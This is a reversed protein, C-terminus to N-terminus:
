INFVDYETSAEEENDSGTQLEVYKSLEKITNLQFLDKISVEVDMQKRIASIVRVALLSHGGLEFFNDNVGIKEVGLLEQWINALAKEVYSVPAVYENMSLAQRAPNPLARRDIKGNTTVPLSELEVWMSPVMYEPLNNKLENVISEKNFTGEPVVYAVLSKSGSKDERALVVGQRVGTVQQLCSEIEGLEIRYGRIKVQDDIRGLYEINGDSLWRALDGTRYLTAGKEKSFKDDIFKEATLDPRNLYGQAVQVGGIYLEGAVGIPQLAKKNNLVYLATNDIPKGIPPLATSISYEDVNHSSVVHAETPGYQNVLSLDFKKVFDRIDATVKLQEGAVIIQELSFSIQSQSLLYEALNKFVIFPIFLHTIQNHSLIEAMKPMDRRDDESIIHLTSGFCLTSFIEQFSVDFNLSAFQLVQRHHNTFQKEQWTLLNVMGDRGMKVGKPRGTSGSTYIIYILGNPNLDIDPNNKSQASIDPMQTDLEIIEIEAKSTIKSRSIASSVIVAANTDSLMFGIREEPYEPDIPVYAAGAKVIGLVGVILNLSREICIPVMAGATVGKAKLYNALQNARENLQAYTLAEKGFIVANAEPSKTVQAEFIDIISLHSPFPTKTNNFDFTLQKEEDPTLMSLNDIEQEPSSIAASLLQKFHGAMRTITQETFLDTAYEISGQLGGPTENMFFILDFKSTDQGFREHALEVDGLKLKEVEPTNQLVFMVQFLPSRSLDREKVVVEVVKEFPVEQNAYAELTILKVKQLLANFSTEGEVDTRIALTNVFFGILEEVEKQIRNAIPTGVCIDRQNSYRHLLVKFCTLLTMYLTTGQEKSLRQLQKSLTANINFKIISGRNSQVAPRPYDTPLQLPTTDSLQRKWYQVKRDMVDGQLYSRQWLAYDAFQVPVEPLLPERHESFSAYLEVLEKVIISVSWGDSAIHHVTVVLIYEEPALVVLDARIMYDRALEFPHKILNEILQHLQQSDNQYRTGDTVRLEWEKYDRIQQFVKGDNEMFVTRLVEHRKVITQLAYHLAKENLRGNLRLVTPIHYPLSGELQDIFWLREQSFSLPIQVPRKGVLIEPLLEGRNQKEVQKALGGITPHNFLDKIALEVNLKKRVASVARTALLSHGGLDFFDDNLGVREVGLLQQWILALSKEVETEPPAYDLKNLLSNDERESLFKRDVKGNTTLPLHDLMIFATPIMYDPLRQQLEARIESQLLSSITTMLPVNTYLGNFNNSGGNAIQKFISRSPELEFVVDTKLPDGNVLLRYKYGRADAAQFLQKVRESTQDQHRIAATLNGVTNESQNSLAQDLMREQWLRPNPVNAITIIPEGLELKGPIQQDAVENWNLWDPNVTDKTIGVHLVVNYRYLTLENIFSSNKWQIEVHTIQPFVAQLDRFYDPSFCLEEEKLVEQDVSWQFERVNVTDQLKSLILRSKFLKLLRKDRVDGIIIRGQGKLVLICKKVVDTLYDDGPFYQVVSNIVITDINENENVAIEHAASVHLETPGYDRLGESIRNRIQNVASKSFDSGIYKNVKGALQYYILGTGSGIELVSKPNGSLILNIIDYLWDKMQEAPIPLADFSNNWGIINFEPDINEDEETKEYETEYLEKWNAVQRYYLEKEKEKVSKWNPVIYGALQKSGEKETRALVVAESVMASQNLITEIEGLEIRYGRIKVQNDLRGMYEISGDPLWRGLDGTRYLRSDRKADFPNAVFRAATLEPRNHYGRALGAGAICIEGAVGVPVLELEGTLIYIQTNSIPKGILIPSHNQLRFVTSYTTDETPGYLNRIEMRDADLKSQVSEPIPEGAMNMVSINTLDTGEKLLHQIVTPVSNTMVNKEDALYNGIYLGNEIIRLRKGISLPYFIEFISLDFCMSTGAYVIDFQSSLFEDKCWSIFSFMNGHEIMVGKPQGTSGSTYIVYALNRPNIEINPNDSPQLDIVPQETDVEVIHVEASIKIKSRVISSSVVFSGASDKLMYKIREDPYEPDVPVYAGGAKLIGLMSVIMNSSREICLPVLSEAKVGLGILYHAFQNARRNLEKYTIEEKEFVVAVTDPTCLVQEEFLDIVTKNGPYTKSTNNFDSLLQEKEQANIMELDSIKTEPSAVIGKLLTQFHNIMRKITEPNFLDTCYEISLRIGEPTETAFFTLDFLATKHERNENALKVDGLKLEPIEPTNRLVFMVQFLPNRSLDRESVVADVIKEFPIEQNAYAELTKTKIQQLLENFSHGANLETRLALTNVFFGILKELEPQLRGAIPTGVCIDNQGSYRYLLVKFAALLTMFLTTGQRHSLDRLQNSMSVDIATVLAAGRTSQIAPRRYDTPLQLPPVDALKQKWYGLKKDFVEGVLYNRQWIAYDAYQITLAPLQHPKNQNRSEYLEVLESVFVSRSWGDSAIHHLTVVLVNDNEDLTIIAARIMSDKSLDFPAETIKQLYLDLAAANNKYISGDVIELKWENDEKIQQYPQGEHQIIVTRLVEHRSVITELSYSLAELNLKGKLRLVAPVHYQVSGEMQDIFWLREQSFSLPIQEPRKTSPKISPLVQAESPVAIQSALTAVTPFDFIHGIPMEVQFERRIMSILRVALLSHGGREFFDDHVGLEEVELVDKWLVSLREETENRPAVHQGGSQESLEPDPLSKRDIKGNPLMPFSEMVVWIAPIMYEPLKEKLDSLMEDKDFDGGGTVYGVLRKNGDKDDKALVVAQNVIGGQLLRNEIEGLEVRYGRIKVQDDVRGIFEINGDALYRVLDGTRYMLLTHNNGFPNRIFKESTLENNNLYGRAVGDGAIHLEGPVGPPCLRGDVSLIYAKSNSFPKGIPITKSYRRGFDVVHLLKGITTETPGYHNVVKCGSGSKKIKEIVDSSLAEGGFVLIRAPLLLTDQMTLAKWHSPVIKLCDIKHDEFYRHLEEINSVSNKSFIHLEGGFILSPFIVTNGLDTAISSVLAYSKCENIQIAQNLGAVYDVLSRHEIMVGKPRGTSGSTYILYALNHPKLDTQPNTVPQQRVGSFYDDIEIVELDSLSPLYYASESSSVVLAAGTDNLVFLKRDEPFDPEIPVYAAGAKLIGLIGVLMHHSREICLPVFSDEKIGRTRLYHALQNARENLAKYSLSHEEFVVATSDPTRAAQEEFLDVITSQKSYEVKSANFEQLYEKEEQDTLLSINGIRETPEQIITALLNQFHAMMRRITPETYLDSAYRVLGKLGDESESIFVTIDFKSLKSEIEELSIELEGLKLQQNKPTNILVLMVQFLPSRSADREKVVTHVVQEFPVEQNEYAEMMTNKVQQLFEIFSKVGTVESRLALTNVFFGVLEQVELQSRNAISTGVCIDEQTSYKHLLVKFAALLTMYLSAGQKQSLKQIGESVEKNIQFEISAGRINRLVPRSFDTPLQLPLVNELKKKWYNIKSGLVEPTLYSRQWAAYDAYQIALPALASPQGLSYAGYLEMLERTMIPVSWADSAIHHMTVVLLHDMENLKILTARVMYDRSLDFPETILEQIYNKLGEEDEHYSIGHLFSLEWDDGHKIIQYPKGHEEHFVTRLVEHRSVITRMADELAQRNLIGKLRIVTPLNYQVSGELQDVFWISEQSFSLPIQGVSERDFKNIKNHNNEVSTTAWDKNNLFDIIAQKNDKIQDILTKDIKKNEAVKLQLREGTVVFDIGNQKALYILDIIKTLSQEM